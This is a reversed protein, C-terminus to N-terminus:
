DFVGRLYACKGWASRLGRSRRGLQVPVVEDNFLLRQDDRGGCCDWNTSIAFSAQSIFGSKSPTKDIPDAISPADWYKPPDASWPTTLFTQGHCGAKRDNPNNWHGLNGFGFTLENYDDFSLLFLRVESSRGYWGKSSPCEYPNSFPANEIADGGIEDGIAANASLLIPKAEYFCCSNGVDTCVEEECACQPECWTVKYKFCQKIILGLYLGTGANLKRSHLFGMNVLYGGCLAMVAGRPRITVLGSPDHWSVPQNNVYAYCQDGSFRDPDRSLWRGITPEYTRARVYIENTESNAYYGLAGKYGFPNETTGTRAIEEGFASYEYTDTVNEDEDTLESTNGEGDYNYYRVEDGRKQAIVEGYMGPEHTYSATIEGNEDEECCVNDDIEDWYYTTSPM